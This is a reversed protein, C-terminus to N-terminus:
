TIMTRLKNMRQEGQNNQTTVNGKGSLMNHIVRIHAMKFREAEKCANELVEKGYKKRPAIVGLASKFGQQVYLKKEMM